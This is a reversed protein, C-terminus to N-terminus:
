EGGPPEDADFAVAGTVSTGMGDELSYGFGAGSINGNEDGTFFGSLSGDGQSVSGDTTDTVTVDDFSGGFTADANDIAIDTASANWIENNADMSLSVDADVTQRDFDASLSASGLTGVNGANDTPNTNGVLTFNASGTTPLVPTPQGVSGTVWHLSSNGLDHDTSAGTSDMVSISGNAWRGWRIGSAADEGRDLIEASGVSYIVDSTNGQSDTPIPGGFKVLDGNGTMLVSASPGSSVGSFQDVTALPGAAFGVQGPQSAQVDNGETLSTPQGSGDTGTVVVQVEADSEENEGIWAIGAALVDVGDASMEPASDEDAVYGYQGPGLELSGAANTLIVGGETVGVYLGTDGPECAAECYVADYDTGRIGITAVPTRVRYASKDKKGVAGTISRFGGKVLSFFSRDQSDATGADSGAYSFEEIVFETSPRLAILGGDAMRLQVRGTAATSFHDGNEFSMGKVVEQRTGDASDLWAQGFVFTVKGAEASAIMPMILMATLLLGKTVAFRINM